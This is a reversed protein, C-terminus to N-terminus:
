KVEVKRASKSNILFQVAEDAAVVLILCWCGLYVSYQLLYCDVTIQIVILKVKMCYPALLHLAMTGIYAPMIWPLPFEM